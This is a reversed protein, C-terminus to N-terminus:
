PSSLKNSQKIQGRPTEHHNLPEEERHWQTTQSQPIEQDYESNKVYLAVGGKNNCMGCKSQKCTNHIDQRDRRILCFGGLSYNESQCGPHLWTESLGIIDCDTLSKCSELDQFHLPSSQINLQCHYSTLRRLPSDFLRHQSANGKFTVDKKVKIYQKDFSRLYLGKLSRSRSLALFTHGGQFYKDLNVVITNM